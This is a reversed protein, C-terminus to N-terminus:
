QEPVRRIYQEFADAICQTVRTVDARLTGTREAPLPASLVAHHHRGPGRYVVGAILMAGSRLALTAPGAPFTTREGFFEVEVGGGTLDRDCLLGVLGGARLTRLVTGSSAQDLPVVTLGMARRQDIFWEFLEPPEIREAVSTMPYGDSDLFAGGWEWSGVHPLAMVVGRGEAMGRQLHEYGEEVYMRQDVEARSTSPLRAGEVWYRAYERFTRRVWRRVLAPDPPVSPPGSALVRRLNREAMRRAPGDRRAMVEVVAAAVAHALQEPLLALATGATRYVLYTLNPRRVRGM